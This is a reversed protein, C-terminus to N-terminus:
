IIRIKYKKGKFLAKKRFELLGSEVGIRGQSCVDAETKLQMKQSHVKRSVGSM